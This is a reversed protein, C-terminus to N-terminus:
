IQDHPLPTFPLLDAHMLQNCIAFHLDMVHLGNPLAMRVLYTISIIEEEVSIVSSIISM